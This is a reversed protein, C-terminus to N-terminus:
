ERGYRVDRSSGELPGRNARACRHRQLVRDRLLLPGEPLAVLILPKFLCDTRSPPVKTDAYWPNVWFRPNPRRTLSVRSRTLPQPDERNVALMGLFARGGLRKSVVQPLM